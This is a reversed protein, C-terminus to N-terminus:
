ELSGLCREGVELFTVNVVWWPLFEKPASTLMEPEKRGLMRLVKGLSEQWM